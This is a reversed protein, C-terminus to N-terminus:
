RSYTHRKERSGHTNHARRSRAEEIGKEVICAKIKEKKPVADHEQKELEQHEARRGVCSQFVARDSMRNRRREVAASSSTTSGSVGLSRTAVADKPSRSVCKTLCTACWSTLSSRARLTSKTRNLDIEDQIDNIETLVDDIEVPKGNTGIKRM